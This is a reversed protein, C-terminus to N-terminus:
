HGNLLSKGILHKREADKNKADIADIFLLDTTRETIRQVM